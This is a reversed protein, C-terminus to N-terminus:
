TVLTRFVFWHVVLEEWSRLIMVIDSDGIKLSMANSAVITTSLAWAQTLPRSTAGAELVDQTVRVMGELSEGGGLIPTTSGWHQKKSHFIYRISSYFDISLSSKLYRTQKWNQRVRAELASVM